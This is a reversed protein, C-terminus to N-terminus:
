CQYRVQSRVSLLNGERGCIAADEQRHSGRSLDANVEDCARLLWHAVALNGSQRPQLWSGGRM